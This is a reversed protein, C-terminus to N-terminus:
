ARSGGSRRCGSRWRGRSSRFGCGALQVARCGAVGLVVAFSHAHVLPLMGAIVGAAIMCSRHEAADGSDAQLTEWWLRLVIIALPLGLLLGRQTVLLTTVLNGWRYHGDPTITYDHPLRALLAWPGSEREMAEGVLRWWGLGGSFFALLPALRAAVAAWLELTWRFLLAGFALCLLLTSWVIVPRVAGVIVFM